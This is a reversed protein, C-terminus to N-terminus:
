TLSACSCSSSQLVRGLLACMRFWAVLSVGCIGWVGRSPWTKRPLVFSTVNEECMDISLQGPAIWELGM